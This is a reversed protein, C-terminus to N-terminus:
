QEVSPLTPLHYNLLFKSVQSPQRWDVTAKAEVPACRYIAVVDLREQGRIGHIYGPVGELNAIIVVSAAEARFLRRLAIDQVDVGIRRLRGDPTVQSSTLINGRVREVATYNRLRQM